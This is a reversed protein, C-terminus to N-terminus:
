DISIPEIKGDDSCILASGREHWAGLVYRKAPSNNVEIEHIAERHTHGHILTNVGHKEMVRIVEEPTVDMIHDPLTSMHAKSAKRYEKVLNRRKELSKLLFLKQAWWKRSKKRFKLYKIDKTCLTDGHMLLIKNGYITECHEDALLTCGTSKLFSKGILFDRNGHMFYVPLGKDNLKKLHNIIKSNHENTDDDGIWAEFFDGLIYLAETGVPLNNIFNIFLDTIYPRTEDLHLDSIIIKQM